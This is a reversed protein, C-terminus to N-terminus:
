LRQLFGQRCSCRISEKTWFRIVCSRPPVNVIAINGRDSTEEGTGCSTCDDNGISSKWSGIGCEECTSVIRRQSFFFGALCLCKDIGTSAISLTTSDDTCKVCSNEVVDEFYGIECEVCGTGEVFERGPPCSNYIHGIESESLARNYIRVDDLSGIWFNSFGGDGFRLNPIGAAYDFNATSPLACTVKLVNDLYM